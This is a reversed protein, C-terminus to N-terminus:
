VVPFFYIYKYSIFNNIFIVSLLIFRMYISQIRIYCINHVLLFRLEYIVIYMFIFTVFLYLVSVSGSCKNRASAHM